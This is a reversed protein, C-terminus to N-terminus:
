TPIPLAVVVLPDLLVVLPNVLAEPPAPWQNKEVMQPGVPALLDTGWTLKIQPTASVLNSFFFDGSFLWKQPRTWSLPSLNSDPKRPHQGNIKKLWKPDLQRWFTRVEHSNLRLHSRSWTQSSFIALFCGNRLDPGVSHLYTPIQSGPTSATSKKWGNPTWSAGFPGYRM